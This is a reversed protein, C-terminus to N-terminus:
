PPNLRYLTSRWCFRSWGGHLVSKCSTITAGLTNVRLEGSPRLVQRKTCLSPWNLTRHQHGESHGSIEKSTM